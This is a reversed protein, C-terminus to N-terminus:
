LLLARLPIEQRRRSFRLRHKLGRDIVVLFGTSRKIARSMVKDIELARCNWPGKLEEQSMGREPEDESPLQNCESLELGKKASLFESNV